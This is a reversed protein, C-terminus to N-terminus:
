EAKKIVDCYFSRDLRTTINALQTNAIILGFCISSRMCLKGFTQLSCLSKYQCIVGVTTLIFIKTMNNLFQRERERWIELFITESM